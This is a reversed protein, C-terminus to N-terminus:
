QKLQNRMDFTKKKILQFTKYLAFFELTLLLVELYPWVNKKALIFLSGEPFYESFAGALAVEKAVLLLCIKHLIYNQLGEPAYNSRRHALLYM